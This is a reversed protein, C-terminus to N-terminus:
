FGTLRRVLAAVRVRGWPLRCVTGESACAALQGSLQRLLLWDFGARSAAVLVVGLLRQCDAAEPLLWYYPSQIPTTKRKTASFDISCIVLLWALVVILSRGAAMKCKLGLFTTVGSINSQSGSLINKSGTLCPSDPVM